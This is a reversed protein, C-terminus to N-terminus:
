SLLSPTLHFHLCPCVLNMVLDTSDVALSIKNRLLSLSVCLFLFCVFGIVAFGWVNSHLISWQISPDWFLRFSITQDQLNINLLAVITMTGVIGSIRSSACVSPTLKYFVNERRETFLPLFKYQATASLGEKSHVHPTLVLFKWCVTPTSWGM